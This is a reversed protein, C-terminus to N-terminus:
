KSPKSSDSQQEKMKKFLNSGGSNTNKDLLALSKSNSPLDRILFAGGTTINSTAPNTGGSFNENSAQPEFSNMKDFSFSKNEIENSDNKIIVDNKNILKVSGKNDINGTNGASDINESIETLEEKIIPHSIQVSKSGTSDKQQLSESTLFNNNLFNLNSSLVQSVSM